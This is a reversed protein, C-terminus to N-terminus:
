EYGLAHKTFPCNAACLGCMTDDINLMTKARSRAATRCAQANFFADRDVGVEWLGGLPAKGPCIDMCVTCNQPCLSKTVPTGCELPANTFVVVMRIASGFDKTVLMACKGIWGIGSLTAVTKHPLVSSWNEDSVVTSTIKALAKCDRDVLYQETLIALEKLRQTMPDHEDHYKQPLNNKNDRMAEKTFSLAIVIGYDFNQRTEKPLCRLDAFGILNCGQENLYNKLENSLNM